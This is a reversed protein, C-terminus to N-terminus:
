KNQPRIPCSGTHSIVNASCSILSISFLFVWLSVTVEGRFSVYVCFYVFVLACLCFCLSFCLCLFHYVSLCIATQFVCMMIKNRNLKKIVLWYMQGPELSPAGVSILPTSNPVIAAAMPRGLKYASILYKAGPSFMFFAVALNQALPFSTSIYNIKVKRPGLCTHCHSDRSALASEYQPCQTRHKVWLEQLQGMLVDADSTM